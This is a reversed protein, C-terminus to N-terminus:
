ISKGDDHDGKKAVRDTILEPHEQLHKFVSCVIAYIKVAFFGVLGSLGYRMPESFIESWNELILGSLVSFIFVILGERITQLVGNYPRIIATLVAIILGIISYNEIAEKFNSLM